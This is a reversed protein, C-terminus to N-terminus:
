SRRRGVVGLGTLGLFLLAATGPEPIQSVEGFITVNDFQPAGATGGTGDFGLRFFVNDGLGGVISRTIAEGTNDFVESALANWSSGDSSWEVTVTSSTAAGNTSAAFTISWDEAQYLAGLSVVSAEFVVSVDTIARMKLVNRFDQGTGAVYNGAGVQLVPASADFAVDGVPIENDGPTSLNPTLSTGTPNVNAIGTIATSGNAGNMYLTGFPQSDGGAGFTPDFDSYNSRLTTVTTFSQDVILSGAGAYQTFDWGAIM